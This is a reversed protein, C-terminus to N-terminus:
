THTAFLHPVNNCLSPTLHTNSFLFTAALHQLYPFTNCILSPTAFLPPHQLYPLTSCISSSTAFPLHRSLFTNRLSSKAFPLHQSPFTSSPLFSFLFSPLFSLPFSAPFSPFYLWFSTGPLYVTTPVYQFTPSLIVNTRNFLLLLSMNNGNMCFFLSMASTKLQMGFYKKHACMTFCMTFGM